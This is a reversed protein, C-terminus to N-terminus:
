RGTPVLAYTEGLWRGEADYGGYLIMRRTAPDWAITAKSRTPSVRQKVLLRWDSGNWAWTQEYDDDAGYIVLLEHLPDWVPFPYHDEYQSTLPPKTPPHLQKWSNGSLEWTEVGHKGHTLLICSRSTPCYGFAAVRSAPPNNESELLTPKGSKWVWCENSPKDPEANEEFTFSEYGGYWVLRDGAADYVFGVNARWSLDIRFDSVEMFGDSSWASLYSLEPGYGANHLYYTTERTPDHAGILSTEYNWDLDDISSWAKGNWVWARIREEDGVGWTFTAPRGQPDASLFPWWEGADAPGKTSIRVWKYDFDSPTPVEV